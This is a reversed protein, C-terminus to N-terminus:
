RRCVLRPAPFPASSLSHRQLQLDFALFSSPHVVIAQYVDDILYVCVGCECVRWVRESACVCVRWVRVFSM